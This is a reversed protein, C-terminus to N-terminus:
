ADTSTMTQALWDHALARVAAAAEENASVMAMTREQEQQLFPLDQTALMVASMTRRHSELIPEVLMAAQSRSMAPAVGIEESAMALEGLLRQALYGSDVVM